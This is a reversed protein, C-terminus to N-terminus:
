YCKLEGDMITLGAKRAACLTQWADSELMERTPQKSGDYCTKGHADDKEPLCFHYGMANFLDVSRGFSLLRTKVSLGHSRAWKRFDSLQMVSGDMPLEISM